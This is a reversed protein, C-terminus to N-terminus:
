FCNKMQAITIDLGKSVSYVDGYQLYKKAKSIDAHSHRIDGIRFDRMIPSQILLESYYKKM